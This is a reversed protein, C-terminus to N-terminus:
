LEDEFAGDLDPVVIDTEEPTTITSYDTRRGLRNQFRSQRLPSNALIRDMPRNERSGTEVADVSKARTIARAHLTALQGQLQLNATLPIAIEVALGLAVAKALMPDFEPVTIRKVYRIYATSQDTLLRQGEEIELFEDSGNFQEGNLELLRLFDSPLQFANTFGHNPATELESLTARAIACNWRHERLHEDIVQQVFENCIRAHKSTTDAIDTIASEGLHALARNALATNDTM